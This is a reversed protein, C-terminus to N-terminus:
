LEPAIFGDTGFLLFLDSKSLVSFELRIRWLFFLFFMYSKILSYALHLIYCLFLTVDFLLMEFNHLAGSLNM